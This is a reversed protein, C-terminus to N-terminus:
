SKTPRLTSVMSKRPSNSDLQSLYIQVCFRMRLSIFGSFFIDKKIKQQQLTALKHSIKLNKFLPFWFYIKSKQDFQVLIFNSFFYYFCCNPLVSGKREWLAITKCELFFKRLGHIQFRCDKKICWTQKWKIDRKYVYYSGSRFVCNNTTAQRM